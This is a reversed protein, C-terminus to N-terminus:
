KQYVIILKPRLSSNKQYDSSKFGNEEGTSRSDNTTLALGYNIEGNIWSQVLSTIDWKHWDIGQSLRTSSIRSNEYLPKNDWETTSEEWPGKIKYVKVSSLNNEGIFSGQGYLM